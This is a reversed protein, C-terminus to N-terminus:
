ELSKSRDLKNHKSEHNDVADQVGDNNLLRAGPSPVRRRRKEDDNRRSRWTASTDGAHSATAGEPDYNKVSTLPELIVNDSPNTQQQQQQQQQLYHRVSSRCSEGALLGNRSSRSFGAAADVFDHNGAAFERGGAESLTARATDFDGDANEDGCPSATLEFVTRGRGFSGYNVSPGGHLEPRDRFFKLSGGHHRWYRQGDQPQRSLRGDIKLDPVSSHSDSSHMRSSRPPQEVLSRDERAVSADAPRGDAFTREGHYSPLRELASGRYIRFTEPVIRM